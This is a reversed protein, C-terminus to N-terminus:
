LLSQPYIGQEHMKGIAEIVVPKDERYTVGYWRDNTTLVKVKAKGASILSDVASPLYFEAKAANKGCSELFRHFGVELEGFLSPTFGWMNM